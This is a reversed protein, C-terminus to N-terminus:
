TQASLRVEELGHFWQLREHRGEVGECVYEVTRGHLVGRPATAEGCMPCEVTACDGIRSWSGRLRALRHGNLEVVQCM